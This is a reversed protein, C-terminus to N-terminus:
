DEILCEAPEVNVMKYSSDSVLNLDMRKTFKNYGKLKMDKFRVLDFFVTVNGSWDKIFAADKYSKIEVSASGGPQGTSGTDFPKVEGAITLSASSSSSQMILANQAVTVGIVIFHDNWNLEDEHEHLQKEVSQLDSIATQVCETAVLYTAGEKTFSIELKGSNGNVANGEATFLMSVSKSSALKYPDPDPDSEAKFKIDLNSLSTKKTFSGIPRQGFLGRHSFQIIDGVQVFVGPLYVPIKDLQRIIEKCYDKYLAM